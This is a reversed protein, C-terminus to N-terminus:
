ILHRARRRRKVLANWGFLCAMGIGSMWIFSPEPTAVLGSVPSVDAYSNGLRLEDFNSTQGEAGDIAFGAISSSFNETWVTGTVDPAALGPTPDFYVTATDQGNSNANFQFEISVFVPQGAVIPVTSNEIMNGAGVAYFGDNQGTMGVEMNEIGFEMLGGDVITGPQMLFSLWETTGDAGLGSGVLTRDAQSTAENSESFSARNGSTELAGYAISGSQITYDPQAAQWSGAFGTGGNLMNLNQGPAYNFGEYLIPNAAVSGAAMALVVCANAIRVLNM